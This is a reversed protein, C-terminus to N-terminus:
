GLVPAAASKGDKHQQLFKARQSRKQSWGAQGRTFRGKRPDESGPAKRGRSLTAAPFSRGM